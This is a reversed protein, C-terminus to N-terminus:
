FLKEKVLNFIFSVAVSVAIFIGTLKNKWAMLDQVDREIRDLRRDLELLLQKLEDNM